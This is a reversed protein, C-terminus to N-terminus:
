SPVRAGRVPQAPQHDTPPLRYPLQVAKKEKKERPHTTACHEVNTPAKRRSKKKQRGKKKRIHFPHAFRQATLESLHLVISCNSVREVATYCCGPGPVLCITAILLPALLIQTGSVLCQKPAVIQTSNLQTSHCPVAVLTCIKANEPRISSMEDMWVPQKTPPPQKGGHTLDDCCFYMYICLTM